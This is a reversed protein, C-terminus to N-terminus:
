RKSLRLSYRSWAKCKPLNRLLHRHKMRVRNRLMRPQVLKSKFGFSNTRSSLPAKAQGCVSSYSMLNPDDLKHLPIHDVIKNGPNTMKTRTMDVMVSLGKWLRFLELISRIKKSGDWKESSELHQYRIMLIDFRDIMAIPDERPLPAFSALEHRLKIELGHGTMKNNIELQHFCTEGDYEPGALTLANAAPLSKYTAVNLQNWVFVRGEVVSKQDWKRSMAMQHYHPRCVIDYGAVTMLRLFQTSFDSWTEGTGDWEPISTVANNSMKIRAKDRM